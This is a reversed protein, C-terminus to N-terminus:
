ERKGALARQDLVQATLRILELASHFNQRPGGDLWDVFGQWTANQRATVYVTFTFVTGQREMVDENQDDVEASQVESQAMIAPILQKEEVFSRKRQFAQPFDLRDFMAEIQLFFDAIDTFPLGDEACNLCPCYVRGSIRGNQIMDVCVRLATKRHNIKKKLM